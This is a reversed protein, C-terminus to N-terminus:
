QMEKLAVEYVKLEPDFRVSYSAPYLGKISYSAPRMVPASYGSRAQLFTLSVMPEIFIQRKNYYGYIFTATFPQGTFEDSQPDIAHVGMKSVATGPPVVYGAPLLEAPPQQEPNASDDASSFQIVNQEDDNILYFHFDFHPVDYVQAPPHGHSEWDLGVHDVVTRPGEEPMALRYAFLPNEGHAPMPLGELMAASFQVGISVPKGDMGARVVTYAQGQGIAVPEGRYVAAQDAASALLVVFSVLTLLVVRSIARIM